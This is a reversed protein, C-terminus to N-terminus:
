LSLPAPHQVDDMHKPSSTTFDKRRRVYGRTTKCIEPKQWASKGHLASIREPSRLESPCRM